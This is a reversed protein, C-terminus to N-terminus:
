SKPVPIRHAHLLKAIAYPLPPERGHTIRYGVEFYHALFLKVAYRKARAHLHAPPLKGGEYAAKAKTDARYRKAELAKRAQDAFQGQDNREIELAKRSKYLQGYFSDESGSVKVFSEGIIWCLRKLAANWPRKQGKGWSMTPDLGAFRWLHGVTEIAKRGCNPTCPAKPKCVHKATREALPIVCSWPEFSIHALLGATIVPGIGKISMAWEGLPKSEAYRKLARRIQSEVLDDQANLWRLVDHPEESESLARIQGGTRIRNEQMAYYADVLFRAEGETMTRAASVIDRTMRKVVELIETPPLHEGKGNQTMDIDDTM